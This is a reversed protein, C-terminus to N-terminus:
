EYIYEVVKLYDVLMESSNFNPDVPGGLMGGVALNFIVYYDKEFVWNNAGTDNPTVVFVEKDDIFFSIQNPTKEISYKHFDKSYDPGSITKTPGNEGSNEPAHITTLVMNTNKKLTDNKYIHEMIDIEGTDPWNTGTRFDTGLMWFASWMGQGPAAKISAEVTGYKISFKSSIKGSTYNFNGQVTDKYAEKRARIVLNGNEIVVNKPNSTYFQVENNGWGPIDSYAQGAINLWNGTEYVWDDQSPQIGNSQNFQNEYVEKKTYNKSSDETSSNETYSNETSSNETSSNEASSNPIGSQEAPTGQSDDKQLTLTFKDINFGPKAIYLTITQRGEKLPFEQTVNQWDHWSGTTPISKSFFINEGKGVVLTGGGNESSITFSFIYNGSEPIDVEYNLWDGEELYGISTGITQDNEDKIDGKLNPIDRKLDVYDEAEIEITNKSGSRGVYGINPGPSNTSTIPEGEITDSPNTNSEIIEQLAANDNERLQEVIEPNEDLLQQIKEPDSNKCATLLIGTIIVSIILLVSRKQLFRYNKFRKSKVMMVVGM